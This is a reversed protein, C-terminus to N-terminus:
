IMIRTHEAGVPAVGTGREIAAEDSPVCLIASPHESLISDATEGTDGILSSGPAGIILLSEEPARAIGLLRDVPEGTEVRLVPTVRLRQGGVLAQLEGYARSTAREVESAEGKASSPDLSRDDVVHVVDFRLGLADALQGGWGVVRDSIDRELDVASTVVVPARKDDETVFLTPWRTKEAWSELARPSGDAPRGVVILGPEYDKATEEVFDWFSREGTSFSIPVDRVRMREVDRSVENAVAEEVKELVIAERELSDLESRADEVRSRLQALAKRDLGEETTAVVRVGADLKSALRLAMALAAHSAGDFAYAVQIENVLAEM